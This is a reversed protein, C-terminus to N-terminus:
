NWDSGTSQYNSVSRSAPSKSIPSIMKSEVFSESLTMRHAAGDRVTGTTSFFVTQPDSLQTSMQITTMLRGDIIFSGVSDSTTHQSLTNDVRRRKVSLMFSDYWNRVRYRCSLPGCRSHDPFNEAQSNFRRVL